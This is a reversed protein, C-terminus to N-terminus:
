KGCKITKEGVHYINNVAVYVSSVIASTPITIISLVEDNWRYFSTDNELLNVVKLYKKDSSLECRYQASHDVEPVVMCGSTMTALTFLLTTRM